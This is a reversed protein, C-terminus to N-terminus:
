DEWKILKAAERLSEENSLYAPGSKSAQVAQANSLTPASTKPAAKAPGAPQFLKKIKDRDMWKKAEDLLHNEVAECAEKNSLIDGSERYHAEIVEYVLDVSDEAKILEFEDNQNVFDTIQAKFNEIAQAEAQKAQAQKESEIKDQFEKLKAEMKQEYMQFKMEETPAGDNLMMEAIQHDTFGQEKLVKLPEQKLREPYSKYQEIGAEREELVKMKADLEAMRAQFQQEQQRISKEKRSLAAFKAAFKQEAETKATEEETPAPPETPEVDGSAEVSEEPLDFANPAYQGNEDKYIEPVLSEQGNDQGSGVISM